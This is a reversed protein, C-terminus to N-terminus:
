KECQRQLGEDFAQRGVYWPFRKIEIIADKYAGEGHGV